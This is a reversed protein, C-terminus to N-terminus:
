NFIETANSVFSDPIHEIRPKGLSPSSCHCVIWELSIKARLSQFRETFWMAKSDNICETVSFQCDTVDRAKEIRFNHRNRMMELNHFVGLKDVNPTFPPEHVIAQILVQQIGLALTRLIQIQAAAAEFNRLTFTRLPMPHPIKTGVSNTETSRM